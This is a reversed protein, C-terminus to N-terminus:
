NPSRLSQHMREHIRLNIWEMIDDMSKNRAILRAIQALAATAGVMYGSEFIIRSHNELQLTAAFRVFDKMFFDTEDTALITEAPTDKLLDIM